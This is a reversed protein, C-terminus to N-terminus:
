KKETIFVFHEALNSPCFLKIFISKFFKRFSKVKLKGGKSIFLPHFENQRYIRKVKLGNQEIMQQWGSRTATRSIGEQEDAPADGTVIVTMIDKLIFTNPLMLCAIGDTKLVRAIEKIGRQPDLYHELSGLSTVYDFHDDPWPLNEGDGTMVSAGLANKEALEVAVPSIDIGFVELGARKAELLMFGAGCAVDLFRLGKKSRILKLVWRYYPAPEEPTHIKLHYDYFEKIERTEKVKYM